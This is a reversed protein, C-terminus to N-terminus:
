IVNETYFSLPLLHLRLNTELSESFSLVGLIGEKGHQIVDWGGYLATNAYATETQVDEAKEQLEDGGFQPRHTMKFDTHM